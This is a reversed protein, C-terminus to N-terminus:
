SCFHPSGASVTGEANHAAQRERKIALAFSLAAARLHAGASRREFLVDLCGVLCDQMTKDESRVCLSVANAGEQSASAQMEKKYSCTCPTISCM